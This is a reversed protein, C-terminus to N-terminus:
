MGPATIIVPPVRLAIPLKETDGPVPAIIGSDTMKDSLPEPNKKLGVAPFTLNTYEPVNVGCADVTVETVIEPVIAVAYVLSAVAVTVHVAGQV